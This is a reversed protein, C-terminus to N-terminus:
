SLKTLDFRSLNSIKKISKPKVYIKKEIKNLEKVKKNVEVLLNDERKKNGVKTEKLVEKMEKEIKKVDKNINATEKDKMKEIIKEIKKKRIRLDPYAPLQSMLHKTFIDMNKIYDEKRKEDLDLREKKEDKTEDKYAQLKSPAHMIEPPFLQKGRKTTPIYTVRESAPEPKYDEDLEEYDEYPDHRSYRKDRSRKDIEYDKVPRFDNNGTRLRAELMNRIENRFVEDKKKNSYM